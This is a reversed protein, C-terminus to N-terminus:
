PAPVALLEVEFQLAAGPKINPPQGADGYAVAAPCVFRAKGGPKMRQLAERWCPIVGNLPLEAPDTKSLNSDFETGDRLTGKYTVRVRDSVSPSRGEGKAVEFFVIGSPLKTAGKAAAQAALFKDSEAKEAELAAQFRARQFAQLKPIDAPDPKAKGAYYDNMGTQLLRLEEETIQLSQMDRAVRVGFAYIAAEDETRKTEEASSPSPLLGAACAV